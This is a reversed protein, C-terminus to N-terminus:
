PEFTVFEGGGALPLRLGTAPDYLGVRILATEPALTLPHSDVVIEGPLWSPTIRAGGAPLSDHQAILNGQADLMHVFVKYSVSGTELAQWYLTLGQAEDAWGLLRALGAFQVDLKNAVPPASFIREPAVVQVPGASVTQGEVTLLLEFPGGPFDAPVHLSAFGIWADGPKWQSTGYLTHVPSARTSIIFRSHMASAQVEVWYDKSLSDTAQWYFTIPLDEGVKVRSPVDVGTLTLPGFRAELTQAPRLVAPQAPRGVQWEGIKVSAPQLILGDSQRYVTVRLDYAGPPTGPIPALRHADRAYQEPFWRHTPMGAPHQTDDQAVRRGAYDLTVSVSWDDDLPRLARWYLVAQGELDDYGILQIQEGFTVQLPHQVRDLSQGDFRDQRFPNDTRELIAAKFALAALSV